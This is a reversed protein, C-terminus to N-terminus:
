EAVAFTEALQALRAGFGEAAEAPYEWAVLYVADAGETGMFYLLDGDKEVGCLPDGWTGGLGDEFLYDDEQAMLWNRASQLDTYQLRLVRLEVDDNLLSEWSDERLNGETDHELKWGEDPIYISYGEGVYLTVPVQEEVGEVLVTLETKADRANEPPTEPEQTQGEPASVPASPQGDEAKEQPKEGCASLLLALGLVLLVFCRKKM